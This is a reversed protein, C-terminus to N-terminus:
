NATSPEPGVWLQVEKIDDGKYLKITYIGPAAATQFNFSIKNQGNLLVARVRKNGDLTGGDEVSIVVKEGSRGHPYYVEIPVKQLPKIDSVQDFSGNQNPTVKYSKSDTTVLRRGRKQVNDVKITCFAMEGDVAPNNTFRSQVQANSNGPVIFIFFFFIWLPLLSTLVHKRQMIKSIM